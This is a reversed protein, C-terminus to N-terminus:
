GQMDRKVEGIKIWTGIISDYRYEEAKIAVVDIEVNSPTFSIVGTSSDLQVYQLFRIILAKLPIM